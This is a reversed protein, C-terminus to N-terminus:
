LNPRQGRVGFVRTRNGTTTGFFLSVRQTDKNKAVVGFAVAGNHWACISYCRLEASTRKGSASPSPWAADQRTNGTAKLTRTKQQWGSLSRATTNHMHLIAGCNPAPENSAIICRRREIIFQRNSRLNDSTFVAGFIGNRALMKPKYIISM